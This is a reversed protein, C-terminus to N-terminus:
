IISKQLVNLFSNSFNFQPLKENPILALKEMIMVMMKNPRYDSVFWKNVGMILSCIKLLLGLSDKVNHHKFDNVM